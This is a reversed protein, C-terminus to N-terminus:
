YCLWQAHAEECLDYRNIPIEPGLLWLDEETPEKHREEYMRRQRQLDMPTWLKLYEHIETNQKKLLTIEKRQLEIVKELNHISHNSADRLNNEIESANFLYLLFGTYIACVLSSVIFTWIFASFYNTKITGKPRLEYEYIPSGNIAEYANDKMEQWAERERDM